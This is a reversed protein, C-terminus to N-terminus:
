NGHKEGNKRKEMAENYGLWVGSYLVNQILHADTIIPLAEFVDAAVGLTQKLPDRMDEPMKGHLLLPNYSGNKQDNEYDCAADCLYIFKGLSSGFNKLANRWYDEKMVFMRALIRGFVGAAADPSSDKRREIASLENMCAELECVHSRWHNKVKDYGSSILQAAIKRSCKHEDNWDDLCQHYMLAITMDASYDTIENRIYPHKKVPHPICRREGTQEEPEYLSSLFICLFTMDYTLALRSAVGYREGLSHCLGCYFAQYRAREEETLGATNAKIYGFM